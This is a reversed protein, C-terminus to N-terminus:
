NFFDVFVHKHYGYRFWPLDSQYKMTSKSICCLNRQTFKIPLLQLVHFCVTIDGVHSVKHGYM